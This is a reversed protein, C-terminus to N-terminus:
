RPRSAFFQIRNKWGPNQTSLRLYAEHVLGTPQLTHGPNERQLYRDARRRLEAYVFSFLQDRAAVDGRSWARLLVTLTEPPPTKM